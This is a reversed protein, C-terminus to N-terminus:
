TNSIEKQFIINYLFAAGKYIGLYFYNTVALM